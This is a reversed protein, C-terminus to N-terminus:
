WKHETGVGAELEEAFSKRVGPPWGYLNYRHNKDYHFKGFQNEPTPREDMIITGHQTEHDLNDLFLNIHFPQDNNLASAMELLEFGTIVQGTRIVDDRNLRTGSGTGVHTGYLQPVWALIDAM